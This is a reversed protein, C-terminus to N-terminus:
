ESSAAPAEPRNEALIATGYQDCVRLQFQWRQAWSETQENQCVKVLIQNAGKKLRGQGIYQDIQTGAHYVHNATLLKGNLWVKNGNICGLRLEADRAQDSEFECFAYGVAGMHKGIAKNLDVIGYQDTTTHPFWKVEGEKGKYRASLDIEKEPPYAVDFGGKNSNDFPGILHWSMVFGFHEPLNVTQGLDRLAGAAKDIQDLDRASNLATRYAEIAAAKDDDKLSAAKKLAVAVADRRLELSPDNLMGPILRDHATDDVRAILEYALRRARPSHSKDALFQELQQQPLEGGSKIEKSAIAEAAARLWNTPLKGVGDMAALVVPLKEADLQSLSQVAKVAQRHGQGKPGVKRVAALASDVSDASSDQATASLPCLAGALLLITTKLLYSRLKM